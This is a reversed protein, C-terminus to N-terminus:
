EVLVVKGSVRVGNEDEILYHYLGSEFNSVDIRQEAKTISLSHVLQGLSNYLQFNGQHNIPAHINLVDSAPNPYVKYIHQQIQDESVNLVDVVVGQCIEDSGNTNEVLLCVEFDGTSEYVHTPHQDTSNNGDGFTWYWNTPNNGSLDMFEFLNDQQEFEYWAYPGLSDCASGVSPGLKYNPYRPIGHGLPTPLDYKRVQVDCAAGLLNPEEITHLYFSGGANSIYIKGDPALLQTSFSEYTMSDTQGVLQLSNQWDSSELDIQFMRRLLNVYLFRNNPSFNASTSISSNNPLEIDVPNFLEGTCRDFEYICLESIKPFNVGTRALYNGDPSFQLNGSSSAYYELFSGICQTKISEIGNPTILLKHMCNSGSKSVLMWWDRGNGHRCAAYHNAHLTDAIVLSDTFPAYLEGTNPDPIIKAFRLEDIYASLELSDPGFYALENFLLFENNSEPIPLAFIGYPYSLGCLWEWEENFNIIEGGPIYEHDASVVGCGNSYFMLTGNKDCLMASTRFIEAIMGESNPDYSLQLDGSNFDFHLMAHTNNPANAYGGIWYHDRKADAPPQANIQVICLLMLLILYKM